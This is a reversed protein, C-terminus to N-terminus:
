GDFSRVSILIGAHLSPWDGGVLLLVAWWYAVCAGGVRWGASRRGRGTEDLPSFGGCRCFCQAEESRGGWRSWLGHACGVVPAWCVM